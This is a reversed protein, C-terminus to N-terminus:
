MFLVLTSYDRAEWTWCSRLSPILSVAYRSQTSCPSWGRSKCANSRLLLTGPAGLVLALPAFMGLLLHQAMHGHLDSHAFAIVAPSLATGLLVIGVSYSTTRGGNWSSPSFKTNTAATFYLISLAGFAFLTMYSRPGSVQDHINLPDHEVM